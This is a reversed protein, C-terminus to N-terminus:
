KYGAKTALFDVQAGIRSTQAKIDSVDTQMNAMSNEHRDVRKELEETKASTKSVYIVVTVIMSLVTGSAVLIEGFSVARKLSLIKMSM